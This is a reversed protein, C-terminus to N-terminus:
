DEQIAESHGGREWRPTPHLNRGAKHSDMRAGEELLVPTHPAAMKCSGLNGLDELAKDDEDTYPENKL